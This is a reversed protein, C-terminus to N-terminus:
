EGVDDNTKDDIGRTLEVEWRKAEHCEWFIIIFKNFKIETTFILSVRM